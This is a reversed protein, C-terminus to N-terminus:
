DVLVCSPSNFVAFDTAKMGHPKEDWFPDFLGQASFTGVSANWVVVDTITWFHYGGCGADARASEIGRKQWFSQLAHQADQLRDGWGHDLGFRALWAARDARTVPPMWAGSYRAESRSDFKVCLNLYEHCFFPRSTVHSGRPWVNIPGGDYDSRDAATLRVNQSDQNIKLRDPDMAKVYRHMQRDLADGFSGENGMSYVAFSPHRRYHEYLETVDRTPDFPFCETPVDSYYPLEVQILIGLEDAADFYEPVECHTHLRVANFGAARARALHARHVGRDAPSLGTIPYIHDDGFGRFFFPKGNLRFERGVVELKRVGFRERRVQLVKGDASVLEVKATYLNPHEPTWPRFARLALHLDYTSASSSIPVEATEGEVTARLSLSGNWQGGEVEVKVQACHNDFDGRVWVDDICVQPTAELEIDRYIGGWKHMASMLGKRSPRRNDAEVVVKAEEGPKVLDTIEYKYTGCYDDVLAVQRDNVWVWGVSKVGGIRIWIRKGAWAEPVKVRKRYWVSGMHKHRIRKSNEDWTPDWCVSMGPEGIGQAEWCSPVEITRVDKWEAAPFFGWSGNRNPLNPSNATCEWTGRLSVVTADEDGLVSNVVARHRERGGWTFLEEAGATLSLLVSVLVFTKMM